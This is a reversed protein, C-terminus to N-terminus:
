GLSIISVVVFKCGLKEQWIVHETVDCVPINSLFELVIVESIMQWQSMDSDKYYICTPLPYGIDSSSTVM